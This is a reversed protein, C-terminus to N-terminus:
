KMLILKKISSIKSILNVLYRKFCKLSDFFNSFSTETKLSKFDFKKIGSVLESQHPELIEALKKNKLFM